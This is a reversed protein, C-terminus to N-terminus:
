VQRMVVRGKAMAWACMAISGYIFCALRSAGRCQVTPRWYVTPSSYLFCFIRALDNPETKPAWVRKNQSREVVAFKLLVVRHM